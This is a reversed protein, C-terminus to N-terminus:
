TCDQQVSHVQDTEVCTNWVCPSALSPHSAYIATVAAIHLAGQYSELQRINYQPSKDSDKHMKIQIGRIKKGQNIYRHSTTIWLHSLVM